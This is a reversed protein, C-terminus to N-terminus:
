KGKYPVSFEWSGARVKRPPRGPLFVTATTNAPITVSLLVRGGEIKWHSAVKGYRTVLEGRAWTLGEGAEAKGDPSRPLPPLQPRIIIHKYGPQEPDIDVGAVGSYLWEGIAGYAYHNFSNMKHDGFGQDKTYSNWREWMTTAGQLVPYLWSPYTKQLLLKYAVDSRGQRALVPGLLPTGVFGTALHWTRLLEIDWVLREMAYAQKSRPLLDFGLALLYATQTESLVRGQPTVFERNFAATIQKALTAYKRADSKRGLVRAAQALIRTTYAFYATAILDHPTLARTFRGNTVDLALWDGFCAYPCILNRSNKRRWEIWRQMSTYQRELIRTDGYCLYMTWPCIVGADAWAAAGGKGDHFIDPVVHPFAGDPFQADELDICWKTFFTSVDRNFAATRVFVQADGTWGLRENRQPCDTPVELFNGKQGWLVNQQLRNVLPDSCEFSGAAPIGSHLVIGTVDAPTPKECLGTLEVYRFGHFTFRPEYVEEGGGRCIYRDTCEATRLNTTYLTGDDNLMEGFRLTVVTGAPARIKVRAWGVMNQGLDFIHVGFSPETQAVTPMKEQKRVPENRLAVLRASPPPFEVAPTWHTEDAQPTSWEPQERRADYTEGNYLDSKLIPGLITKWDPDSVISERSGDAYDVELQLLLSIQNGYLFHFPAKWGLYGAYWGDGLIAGLANPGAHLATTVDYVLYQIRQAYDTWGPTFYDEGVRQGNLHLEFLGRATVYLRAKVPAEKLAFRKRLLPCPQSGEQSDNPRGIWRAQWDSPKLLGIEFCAPESWDSPQGAHDWVRVRWWVTQRSTLRKGAYVIDLCQDTKVRGTDWLDPKSELRQRSTAATLHYATQHAGQRTDNLQWSLRPKTEDLGLPNLRYECRLACACPTPTNM